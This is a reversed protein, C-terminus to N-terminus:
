HISLYFNYVFRTHAKTCIPPTSRKSPPISPHISPHIHHIWLDTMQYIFLLFSPLSSFHGGDLGPWLTISCPRTGQTSLQSAACILWRERLTESYQAGASSERGVLGPDRRCHWYESVSTLLCLSRCIRPGSPPFAPPPQSQWQAAM